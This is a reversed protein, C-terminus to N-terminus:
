EVSAEPSSYEALSLWDEYAASQHAQVFEANNLDKYLDEEVNREDQWSFTLVVSLIAASLGFVTWLQWPRKSTAEEQHRIRRMIHQYEYPSAEPVPPAGHKLFDKLKQDSM